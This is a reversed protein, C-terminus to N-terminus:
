LIRSIRPQQYPVYSLNAEVNDEVASLFQSAGSLPVFCATICLRPQQVM